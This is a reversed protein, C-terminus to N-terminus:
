ATHLSQQNFDAVVGVIPFQRNNGWDLYKGIAAQPDKFGLINAFTQNIILNRITDSQGLNVGALLKIKYLKIYNADVFMKQADTEIENKGDKYTVIRSGFRESSPATNCLSVMGIGAISQLKNMLVVRKGSDKCYQAMM